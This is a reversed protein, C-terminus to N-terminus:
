VICTCTKCTVLKPKILLGDDTWKILLTWHLNDKRIPNLDRQQVCIM